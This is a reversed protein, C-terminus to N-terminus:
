AREQDAAAEGSDPATQTIRWRPLHATLPQRGRRRAPADATPAVETVDDVPPADDATAPEAELEELALELQAIQERLRESSRGFQLRRLRALQVRLHGAELAKDRLGAEAAQRALREMSLDAVLAGILGRLAGPDDPLSAIDITSSM